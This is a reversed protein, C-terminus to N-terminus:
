IGFVQGRREYRESGMRSRDVMWLLTSSSWRKETRLVKSLRHAAISLAVFWFSRLQWGRSVLQAELDQRTRSVLAWDFQDEAVLIKRKLRRNAKLIGRQVSPWCWDDGAIEGLPTIRSAILIDAEVADTSHDADVYTLDASWNTSVLYKESSVTSCRLVNVRNAFGHQSITAKFTEFLRPEGQQLRM